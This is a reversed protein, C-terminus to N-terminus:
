VADSLLAQLSHADRVPPSCTEGRCVYAAPDDGYAALWPLANKAKDAPIVYTAKAAFGGTVVVVPSELAEYSALFHTYAHPARAIDGAFAKALADARERWVVDATLHFLGVLLEMAFSNGSPLAGDYADLPTQLNPTRVFAGKRRFARLANGQEVAATAWKPEGTAMFLELFGLGLCAHDELFPGHDGSGKYRHRLDKARELFLEGLETAALLAARNELLRGARAMAQLTFGNWDTLAKDDLLPHVRKERVAHLKCLADRHEESPWERLHLINDPHPQRTAEDLFNGEPKAQYHQAVDPGVIRVLEEHNWVTFTGEEGEADADEGSAFDGAPLRLDRLLYTVIDDAVGKMEPWLAAAETYLLLQSAQDYLMKEFHPLLWQADTSYRHFGGGVHDWIGGARMANCARRVLDPHSSLLFRYQHPSPFKPSGRLGGHEPDENAALTARAAALWAEDFEGAKPTRHQAQGLLEDRENNWAATLKPLLEMMGIKGRTHKPFYTGAFFARREHDLVVTLPWGGRGTMAQCAAMYLDDLDPREERDVKICVFDQNLLAAVSEDEFSEHAMVHCWHCTAYGISLFVPGDRRKAEAFADDCWPWWHVPNDKHQLLYPSPEHGLRNM